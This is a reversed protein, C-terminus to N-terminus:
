LSVPPESLLRADLWGRLANSVRLSKAGLLDNVSLIAEHAQRQALLVQRQVGPLLGCELAPTLWVGKDDQVYITSRSGECLRGQGNCFILDFVHPNKSLWAQAQDYVPRYTTKHQLWTENTQLPQACMRLLVPTTTDPLAATTISVSGQSDLLLRVRTLEHPKSGALAALVAARIDRNPRTFGLASASRGVREVHYDLLPVTGGEGRMTEILKYNRLDTM